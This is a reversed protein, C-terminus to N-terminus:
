KKLKRRSKKLSKKKNISKKKRRTQRRRGATQRRRGANQEQKETVNKDSEDSPLINYIKKYDYIGKDYTEQQEPKLDDYKYNGTFDDGNLFGSKNTHKMENLYTDLSNIYTPNMIFLKKTANMFLNKIDRSFQSKDNVMVYPFFLKYTGFVRPFECTVSKNNFLIGNIDPYYRNGSKDKATIRDKTMSKFDLNVSPDSFNGSKYLMDVYWGILLNNTLKQSNSIRMNSQYDKDFDRLLPFTIKPNNVDYGFYNVYISKNTYKIKSVDSCNMFNTSRNKVLYDQIIPKLALIFPYYYVKFSVMKERKEKNKEIMKREEEKRRIANKKDQEIQFLTKRRNAPIM